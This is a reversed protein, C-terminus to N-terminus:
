YTFDEYIVRKGVLWNLVSRKLATGACLYWVDSLDADLDDAQMRRHHLQAGSSAIYEYKRSDTADRDVNPGTLFLTTSAPLEPFRQFTDFVLGIDQMSLSWYLRLRSTKIGPLQGLVPTIGIGGAVFPIINHGQPDEEFQFSGGFGRLPVELGVRVNAQLLFKTVNGNKRITIEFEDAPMDKGPYSSVTFTRIWDDNLSTPDHDRMHSYGIDLENEFSLMAYQGPTYHGIKKSDSIRFRLRSITPTLTERKILTATAPSDNSGGTVITPKETVLHRVSPNYPSLDGPIGSFSLGREVFLAASVTVKVALNSRPIIDAAANGVLVETRGTLYLVNGTEFDPFVYGARPTTQLNGLTQYLRNGSYEPYVLMAGTSDNSLVRVFGPPGGRINTDMDVDGHYSSVFLCDARDLFDLATQTLRPSDSILKPTPLAPLIRKKNLYKPCNGLSADIKVAMQLESQRSFEEDSEAPGFSSVVGAVMRGHLKVRRRNELDIALASVMKGADQATVVGGDASSGLLARIVPDHKQDVLTRLGIISETIPSAFGGEGGWVTSWPRGEKDIAGLALLPARSVLYGAGPSLYPVTPNERSPVHLMRHMQEEGNHWPLPNSLISTM